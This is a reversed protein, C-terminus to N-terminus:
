WSGQNSAASCSCRFPFPPMEPTQDPFSVNRIRTIPIFCQSSPRCGIVRHHRCLLPPLLLELSHIVIQTSFIFRANKLRGHLTWTECFNQTLELRELRPIWLCVSSRPHRFQLGWRKPGSM